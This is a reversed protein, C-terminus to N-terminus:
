CRAVSPIQGGRVAGLCFTQGQWRVVGNTYVSSSKTFIESLFDVYYSLAEAADSSGYKRACSRSFSTAAISARRLGLEDICGESRQLEQEHLVISVVTKIIFKKTLITQPSQYDEFGRICYESSEQLSLAEGRRSARALRRRENKFQALEHSSYWSQLADGSYVSMVQAVPNTAFRVKKTRRLQSTSDFLRLTEAEMLILTPATAISVMTKFNLLVSSFYKIITQTEDCQCDLSLNEQTDLDLIILLSLNEIV